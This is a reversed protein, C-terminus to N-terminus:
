SLASRRVFSNAGNKNGHFDEYVESSSTGPQTEYTTIRNHEDNDLLPQREQSMIGKSSTVKKLTKAVAFLDNKKVDFPPLTKAWAIYATILSTRPLEPRISQPLPSDSLNYVTTHVALARSFRTFPVNQWEM